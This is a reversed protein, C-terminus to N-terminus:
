KEVVMGAAMAAHIKAEIADAEKERGRYKGRAKESYFQNIESRSVAEV